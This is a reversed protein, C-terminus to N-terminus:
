SIYAKVQYLISFKRNRYNFITGKKNDLEMDISKDLFRVYDVHEKIPEIYVINGLGVHARLQLNQPGSISIPVENLIKELEPVSCRRDSELQIDKTDM